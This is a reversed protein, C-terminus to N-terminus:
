MLFIKLHVVLKMIEIEKRHSYFKEESINNAKYSVIMEQNSYQIIVKKEMFNPFFHAFNLKIKTIQM